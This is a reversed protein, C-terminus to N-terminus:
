SRKFHGHATTQAALSAYSRNRISPVAVRFNGKSGIQGATTESAVTQM